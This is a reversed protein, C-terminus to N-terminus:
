SAATGTTVAMGGRSKAKLMWTSGCRMAPEKEDRSKPKDQKGLTPARSNLQPDTRRSLEDPLPHSAANARRKSREWRKRGRGRVFEASSGCMLTHLSLMRPKPKAGDM